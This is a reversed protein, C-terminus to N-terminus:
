RLYSFRIKDACLYTEFSIMVMFNLSLSFYNANQEFPAFRDVMREFHAFHHM